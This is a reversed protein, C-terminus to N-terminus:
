LRNHHADTKPNRYREVSRRWWVLGAWHQALVVCIKTPERERRRDTKPGFRHHGNSLCHCVGLRILRTWITHRVSANHQARCCRRRRRCCRARMMMMMMKEEAAVAAIYCRLYLEYLKLHTRASTLVSLVLSKLSRGSPSIHQQHHHHQQHRKLLQPTTITKGMLHASVRHGANDSLSHSAHISGLALAAACLLPWVFRWVYAGVPLLPLLYPLHM